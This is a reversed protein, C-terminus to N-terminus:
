TNQWPRDQADRLRGEANIAADCETRLQRRLTEVEAILDHVLDAASQQVFRAQRARDLIDTM